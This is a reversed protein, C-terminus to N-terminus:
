QQVQPQSPPQQQAAQQAQQDQAQQAQQQSHAQEVAQMGVEHAQGHLQKWIDTVYELRESLLQSKTNIEAVALQAEIKMKEIAMRAQNDVVKGQKELQLKQLEAQLEKNMLAAQQAQQQAAQVAQQAQPPLQPGPAPPSIIEAMEDGKPGLQKMQIALSLLKAAQPPAVPLHGLNGILGDLFDSAAERQSENSPGVSVTVTHDGEEVPYHHQQQSEDVYPQETNLRVVHHTDDPKRIGVERETDYVVPIWSDIIRGARALARDFNDVFHFSGIAQESQIRDLAVGSKESDRQAATPLGSIGMAAQIARRCSDKAIEYQQFNPTFPARQPLAVPIGRELAWEPYDFQLYAHPIKTCSDIAEADTEFQGTWGTFPVKPTLGAEEMELSCLYALSMQPNRALRPLSFILRTSDDVYMQKGTMVPIPIEEGPQENRELIEIGNTIYQMVRKSEVVRERKAKQGKPLEDVIEGSELLYLRSSEIEVKWYEAVLVTKDQIWDQAIRMDEASFDKTEADPYKRQFDEKPMPDLIFADRADSWDPEKCDIDYLVSDQNAIPKIVIEQDFISADRRTPDNSVFRRSIRFFGYSGEVMQEYATVYAQQALSRYEIGRILNQRLEATKDTSGNGDPEVKIGRKNQRVSNISQNVYQTLEDHSICPRKADERAKRDEDEWPDGSLYKRDKQSEERIERWADSLYSYRDRIEQLLEEDSTESTSPQRDETDMLQTTGLRPDRAAM